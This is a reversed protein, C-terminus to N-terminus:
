HAGESRRGTPTPALLFIWLDWLVHSVLLPALSPQLAYETGWYLGAVTAAGTLTLNGTALHVSGYAVAAALTGRERGWRRMFAHQVLGRWFLEEGPGIVGLLAAAILPRPALTRLRYTEAIDEEGAPMIRSALRDGVQFIAYLGAATAMGVAIDAPRLRLSRLAPRTRLAYLGLSGAGLTMRTWFNGQRGRFVFTWLPVVAALGAVAERFLQEDEQRETM